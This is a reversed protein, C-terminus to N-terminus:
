NKIVYQILITILIIAFLSIVILTTTFQASEQFFERKTARLVIKWDRKEYDKFILNRIYKENSNKDIRTYTLSGKKSAFLKNVYKKSDPDNFINKGEQTKHVIYLGKNKKNTSVVYLHGTKGIVKARLNQKLTEFSRTYNYGIYLAGIIDGNKIIPTYVSMYEQGFLHVAGFYSQKNLLANYAPSGRKITSGLPRTGDPKKMSTAISIFEQNKKVFISGISGELKTYNDVFNKNNNLVISNSTLLATKVGNVDVLTTKDIEFDKFQSKFAKHLDNATDEILDDYIQLTTHIEDLRQQLQSNVKNSIIDHTYSATFINMGILLVSLAAALFVTTKTGLNLNRLVKIM